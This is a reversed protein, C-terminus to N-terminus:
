VVCELHQHKDPEHDTGLMPGLVKYVGSGRPTMAEMRKTRPHLSVTAAHGAWHLMAFFGVKLSEEDGPEEM